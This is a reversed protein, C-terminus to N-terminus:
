IDWFLKEKGLRQGLSRIGTASNEVVQL